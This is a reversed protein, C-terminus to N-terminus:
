FDRYWGSSRRDDKTKRLAVCSGLVNLDWDRYLLDRRVIREIGPIKAAVRRARGKLSPHARRGDEREFVEYGPYNLAYRIARNVSPRDADDFV